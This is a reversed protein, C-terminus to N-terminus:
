RQIERPPQDRFVARLSSAKSMCTLYLTSPSALASEYAGREMLSLKTHMIVHLARSMAPDLEQLHRAIAITGKDCGADSQKALPRTISKGAVAQGLHQGSDANLIISRLILRIGPKSYTMMGFEGIM